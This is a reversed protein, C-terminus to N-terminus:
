KARKYYDIQEKELTLNHVSLAYGTQSTQEKVYWVGFTMGDKYEEKYSYTNNYGEGNSQASATKPGISIDCSLLICFAFFWLLNKM